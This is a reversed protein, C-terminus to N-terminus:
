KALLYYVVLDYFPFLKLQEVAEEYKEPSNLGRVLEEADAQIRTFWSNVAIEGDLRIPTMASACYVISFLVLNM